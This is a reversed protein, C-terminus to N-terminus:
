AHVTLAVQVITLFIVIAAILFGLLMCYLVRKQKTTRTARQTHKVTVVMTQSRGPWRPVYTPPSQTTWSIQQAELDPAASYSPPKDTAKAPTYMPPPFSPENQLDMTPPHSSIAFLGSDFILHVYIKIVYLTLPLYAAPGSFESPEPLYLYLHRVALQRNYHSFSLIFDSPKPAFRDICRFSSQHSRCYYLFAVNHTDTM